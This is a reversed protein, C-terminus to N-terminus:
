GRDDGIWYKCINRWENQRLEINSLFVHVNININGFVIENLYGDLVIKIMKLKLGYKPIAGTEFNDVKIRGNKM